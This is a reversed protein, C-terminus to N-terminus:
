MWACCPLLSGDPTRISALFMYLTNYADIAVTRSGLDPIRVPTGQAIDGLKIGM